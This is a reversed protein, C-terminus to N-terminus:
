VDKTLPKSKFEYIVPDFTQPYHVMLKSNLKNIYIFPRKQKDVPIPLTFQMMVSWSFREIQAEDDEIAGFKVYINGNKGFECFQKSIVENRLELIKFDFLKTKVPHSL